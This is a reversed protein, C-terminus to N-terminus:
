FKREIERSLWERVAEGSKKTTSMVSFNTTLFNLTKKLVRDFIVECFSGQAGRKNGHKQGKFEWNKKLRSWNM